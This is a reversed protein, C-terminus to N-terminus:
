GHVIVQHRSLKECISERYIPSVALSVHRIGARALEDLGIVPRGAILAGHMTPNEDIYAEIEEHPFGAYLPAFIGSAGLGFVGFAVDEQRARARASLVAEINRKALAENREVAAVTDGLASRSTSPGKNPRLIAARAIGIRTMKVVDFGSRSALMELSLPTIKSLHDICFLDNPNVLFDPVSILLAGEATLRARAWKLMTLPAEVHELVGLAAIVDFRGGAPDFTHYPGQHIVASRVRAALIEVSASPEIATLAIHPFRLSFASLFDGKGAGIELFTRAAGLEDSGLFFDLLAVAFPAPRGGSFTMSKAAPTHMRLRYSRSYFESSVDRTGGANFIFGCSECIRNDITADPLVNMDSTVCHGVFQPYIERCAGAGCVPCAAGKSSGGRLM